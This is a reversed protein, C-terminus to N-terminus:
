YRGRGCSVPLPTEGASEAVVTLVFGSRECWWGRWRRGDKEYRVELPQWVGGAPAASFTVEVSRTDLRLGERLLKLASEKASWVLTAFLDRDCEPAEDLLRMETETFFTEVFAASRTDINELDCGIANDAATVACLAADGSHSLSLRCPAPLDDVRAEPAGDSAPLIEIRRLYANEQGMGLKFALAQKGAWRGQRWDKRRKKFRFHADIARERPTLWEDGADPQAGQLYLYRIDTVRSQEVARRAELLASERPAAM